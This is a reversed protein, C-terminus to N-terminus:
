IVTREYLFLLGVALVYLTASFAVNSRAIAWNNVGYRTGLVLNTGSMPNVACGLGWGMAMTLALFTPDPSTAQALPVAVSVVVVPHICFLSTLLFGVLLVSANLADFRQFPTWGDAAAFATVLGAGLVGAALFLALEGGMEPLRACVYDGCSRRLRPLGGQALLAVVVVVPTLMTILTLVSYDATVSYGLLVVTALVLPLWLNELHVPYGRFNDIDEVRGSLAYWSLLALAALSLPFGFLMMLLPSSGPTYDLALAVGGIFPSYFAVATFARSLLQGQNMQLPASRALRDAMIILASINIVAGFAHVGVMSRLYTGRGRPLEPEGETVPPNLVRLLTISALMSLIAQNQGLVSGIDLSAGRWLGWALAVIGMASLTVAQVRQPGGLRPWLLALASWALVAAMVAPVVPWLTSAIGIVLMSAILV